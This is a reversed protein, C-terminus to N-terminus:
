CFYFFFTKDVGVCLFICIYLIGACLFSSGSVKSSFLTAVHLVINHDGNKMKVVCLRGVGWM